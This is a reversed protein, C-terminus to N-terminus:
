QTALNCGTLLSLQSGSTFIFDLDPHILLKNGTSSGLSSQGSFILAGQFATSYGITIPSTTTGSFDLHANDIEFSSDFPIDLNNIKLASKPALTNNLGAVILNKFTFPSVGKITVDTNFRVTQNNFTFPGNNLVNIDEFIIALSSSPTLFRTNLLYIIGGSFNVAASGSLGRLDIVTTDTHILGGKRTSIIKGAKLLKLYPCGELVTPYPRGHFLIKSNLNLFCSGTIYADQHFTLDSNLIITGGNVTSKDYVM